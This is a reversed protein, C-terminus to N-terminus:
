MSGMLSYMPMIMAMAVFGVMLGVGMTMAPEIAATMAAVARDVEEEYFDALTALNSDLAGTEEGVRVMQTLMGPFIKAKALPDALGHGQLLDSRVQELAGTIVRNSQTRIIMAMIEPLALGAQLLTSMSRCMRAVAGQVTVKGILPLKLLLRDITMHGAQSRSFLLIGGGTCVVFGVIVFKFKNVTDVIFMLIRTPLPLQQGFERFLEMLPPLAVTIVLFIVVVAFIAVFSPYAMAGRVKRVLTEEKEVYTALQRLVMELNGTREGVEILRGYISPFADKQRLIGESFFRGQRLDLLVESLVDRLKKSPAQEQLLQLARVLSIGAEILTALQRSFVILERSKIRSSEFPRRSAGAAEKLSVITYNMKWLTQEAVEESPAEVRGQIRDGKPTIATYQYPM